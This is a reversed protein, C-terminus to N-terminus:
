HALQTLALLKPLLQPTLFGQVGQVVCQKLHLQRNM